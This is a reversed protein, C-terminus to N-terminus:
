KIPMGAHARMGQRCSLPGLLGAGGSAPAARPPVNTGALCWGGGAWKKRYSPESPVSVRRALTMRNASNSTNGQQCSPHLQRQCAHVSSPVHLTSVFLERWHPSAAAYLAGFSPRLFAPAAVLSIFHSQQADGPLMRLWHARLSLPPHLSRSFTHFMVSLICLLARFTPRQYFGLVFNGPSQPRNHPNMTLRTHNLQAPLAVSAQGISKSAIAWRSATFRAKLAREFARGTTCRLPHCSTDNAM